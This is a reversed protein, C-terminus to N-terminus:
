ILDYLILHIYQSFSHLLTVGHVCTYIFSCSSYNLIVSKTFSHSIKWIHRPMFMDLAHIYSTVPQLTWLSISLAPSRWCVPFVPPLTLLSKTVSVQLLADLDALPHGSPDPSTWNLLKKLQTVPLRHRRHTAAGEPPSVMYKIFDTASCLTAICDSSEKSFTNNITMFLNHFASPVADM